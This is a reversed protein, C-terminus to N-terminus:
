TAWRRWWRSSSASLAAKSITWPHIFHVVVVSVLVAAVAGGILGEWSKNPSISPALPHRGM